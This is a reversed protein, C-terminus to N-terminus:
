GKLPNNFYFVTDVNGLFIYKADAEDLLRIFPGASDV